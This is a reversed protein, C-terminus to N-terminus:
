KTEQPNGVTITSGPNFCLPLGAHLDSIFTASSPRQHLNSIFTRLPVASWLPQPHGQPAPTCQPANHCQPQLFPCFKHGGVLDVMQRWALTVTQLLSKQGRSDTALILRSFCSCPHPDKRLWRMSKGAQERVKSRSSTRVTSAMLVARGGQQHATHPGAHPPHQLQQCRPSWSNMPQKGLVGVTRCWPETSCSDSSRFSALFCLKAEKHISRRYTLISESNCTRLQEEWVSKKLIIKGGM